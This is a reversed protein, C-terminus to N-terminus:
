HGSFFVASQVAAALLGIAVLMYSVWTVTAKCERHKKDATWITIYSLMTQATYDDIDYEWWQKLAGWEPTIPTIVRERPKHAWLTFIIVGLFCFFYIVFSLHEDPELGNIDFWSIEGIILVTTISSMLALNFQLKRELTNHIDDVASHLRDLRSLMHKQQESFREEPETM